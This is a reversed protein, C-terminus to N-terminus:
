EVTFDTRRLIQLNAKRDVVLVRLEYPGPDLGELSMVNTEPMPVGDSSQLAAPQPKSATIVKGASWIQAQLVVDRVGKEDAKANYVYLQFAVSTGRAFVRRAQADRMTPGEGASALFVGSMMLKQDTLDPLQLRQSAV